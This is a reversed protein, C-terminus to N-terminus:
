PCGGPPRYAARAEPCSFDIGSVARMCDISDQIMRALVPDDCRRKAELLGGIAREQANRLARAEIQYRGELKM